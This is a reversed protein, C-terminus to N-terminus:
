APKQDPRPTRRGAALPAHWRFAAMRGRFEEEGLAADRIDPPWRDALYFLWDAPLRAAAAFQRVMHDSTPFRNGREIDSLYGITIPTGDEKRVRSVFVRMSEGRAQRGQRVAAGFAPRPHEDNM